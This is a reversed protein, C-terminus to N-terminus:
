VAHRHQRWVDFEVIRVGSRSAMIGAAKWSTSSVSSPKDVSFGEFRNRRINPVPLFFANPGLAAVESGIDLPSLVIVDAWRSMEKFVDTYLFTRISQGDPVLVVIRPRSSGAANALISDWNDKLSEYSKRPNWDKVDGILFWLTDPRDASRGRM